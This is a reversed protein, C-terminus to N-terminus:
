VPFARDGFQDRPGRRWNALRSTSPRREECPAAFLEFAVSGQLMTSSHIVATARPSGTSNASMRQDQLDIRTLPHKVTFHCCAAAALVAFM